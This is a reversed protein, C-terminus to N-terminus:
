PLFITIIMIVLPEIKVKTNNYIIINEDNFKYYCNDVNDKIFSFYHGVESEGTHIFIPKFNISLIKNIQM